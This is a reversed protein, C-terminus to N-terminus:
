RCPMEYCCATTCVPDCQNRCLILILGEKLAKQIITSPACSVELGQMLGMGRHSLVVSNSKKIDELKEYLYKGVEKVHELIDYEKFVDLVKSAAACVLPNGGYTTGHDGPQLAAAKETCVFAGIPMGNGLAKAVTLIDPKIGYQQFCFMTGTRGMGCQIEDLILLIDNDDCIDRVGKMFSEDAPYIGGEGQLTEMIIACTKENVLAKVSDLDNFEAFKVGGIM